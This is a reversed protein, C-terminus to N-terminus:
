ISSSPEGGSGRRCRLRLHRSLRPGEGQRRHDPMAAAKEPPPNSPDIRSGSQLGLASLVQEAAGLYVSEEPLVSFSLCWSSAIPIAEEVILGTLHAREGVFWDIAASGTRRSGCLLAPGQRLRERRRGGGQPVRSTGDPRDRLTACRARPSSAGRRSTNPRSSDGLRSKNNLLRLTREFRPPRRAHGGGPALSLLQRAREGNAVSNRALAIAEAETRYLRLARPREIGAAEQFALIEETAVGEHCILPM